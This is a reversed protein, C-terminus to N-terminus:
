PQRHQSRYAAHARTLVHELDADASECDPTCLTMVALVGATPRGYLSRIATLLQVQRANPNTEDDVVYTHLALWRRGSKDLLETRNATIHFDETLTLPKEHSVRLTFTAPDFLPAGHSILEKGQSQEIYENRYLEVVRGGRGIYAVRHEWAAGDYHPDWLGDPSIPGTMDSIIVPNASTAGPADTWHAAWSSVPLALVAVVVLPYAFASEPQPANRPISAPRDTEESLPVWRLVLYFVLLDLAFVWWGFTYHGIAELGQKLDANLYAFVILLIRLWNFIMSLLAAVGVILLRTRLNDRRIEGALVGVAVAVSLFHAGSCELAIYITENPLVVHADEVIAPVGALATLFGVMTSSIVQLPPKLYDWVPIAFYLFGLAFALKSAARWGAGAVLVTFALVPWLVAHVIFLNARAAFLWALSFLLVLPLFRLDASAQVDRLRSRARWILWLSTAAILTGHTYTANKNEWYPWIDIWTQFYAAISILLLLVCRNWAPISTM